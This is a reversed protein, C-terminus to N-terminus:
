DATDRMLGWVRYDVPNLYPSNPPWPDPAIFDPTEQQLLQVTDRTCHALANYTDGAIHYMVPPMQQKM